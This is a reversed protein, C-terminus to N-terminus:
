EEKSLTANGVEGVVGQAGVAFSANYERRKRVPPRSTEIIQVNGDVVCGTHLEVSVSCGACFHSGGYNAKDRKEM